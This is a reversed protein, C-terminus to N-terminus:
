YAPVIHTVMTMNIGGINIQLTAPESPLDGVALVTINHQTGNSVAIKYVSMTPELSRLEGNSSYSYVNYQVGGGDGPAQWSIRVESQGSVIVKLSHPSGPALLSPPLSPPFSLDYYTEEGM